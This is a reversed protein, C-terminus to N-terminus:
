SASLFFETGVGISICGKEEFRAVQQQLFVNSPQDHLSQQATSLAIRASAAREAIHSFERKNLSKLPQKLGKLKACLIFQNTGVHMSDWNQDVVENFDRHQVWMNFFKFNKSRKRHCEFLSVICPSHDSYCGPPLFNAEAFFGSLQWLSNVM